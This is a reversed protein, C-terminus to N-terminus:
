TPVLTCTCEVHLPPLAAQGDSTDVLREAAARCEICGAGAVLLRLKEVGAGAYAAQMGRHFIHTAIGRIEREAQDTRWARFVRSATASLERAGQGASRGATLAEALEAYIRDTFETAVTEDVGPFKARPPPNGLLEGAAAWGAAFAESQLLGIDAAVDQAFGARDPVWGESDLRLGELALNQAESLQRKIARLVRNTIPLLLRDRVDFPDVPPPPVLEDLPTDESVETGMSEPAIGQTTIIAVQPRRPSGVVTGGRLQSFLQDIERGPEPPEAAGGAGPASAAAPEERVPEAPVPEASPGDWAAPETIDTGGAAQSTPDILLGREDTDPAPTSAGSVMNEAVGPGGHDQSIEGAADAELPAVTGAGAVQGATSEEVLRDMEGTDRLKRVEDAITEGDRQVELFVGERPEGLARGVDAPHQAVERQRLRLDARVDEPALLMGVEVQERQQRAASEVIRPALSAAFGVGARAEVQAGPGGGGLGAPAHDLPRRRGSAEHSLDALLELDPVPSESM